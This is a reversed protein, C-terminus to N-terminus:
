FLTKITILISSNIYFTRSDILSSDINEVNVDVDIKNTTVYNSSLVVFTTFPIDYKVCHVSQYYDCSTYQMIIRLIGHVIMKNGSLQQGELSKAQTTKITHCKINDTYGSISNISEIDLNKNPIMLYEQISTQKFNSDNSKM